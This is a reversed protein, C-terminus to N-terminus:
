HASFLVVILIAMELMLALSSYRFMVYRPKMKDLNCVHSKMCREAIDKIAASPNSTAESHELLLTPSPGFAFEEIPWLILTTLSAIVLLLAALTFVAWKPFTLATHQSGFHYDLGVIFATILSAASLIATSRNRLSELASSDHELAQAVTDYARGILDDSSTISV